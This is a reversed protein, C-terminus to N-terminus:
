AVVQQRVGIKLYGFIFFAGSGNPSVVRRVHWYSRSIAENNEGANRDHPCEDDTQDVFRGALFIEGIKSCALM